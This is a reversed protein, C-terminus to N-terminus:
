RGNFEKLAKIMAVINEVPTNAQINHVTNFVFGGDRSFIECRKLVQKRVEEPTGFTLTSQTDIGGGWFVIDKNFDKKLNEAEMNTALCQVPNLIDFGSEIFAPILSRVAGCSHKFTKWNTNQHIWDNIKKYYPMYLSRYSDESCFVSTQTGFDTGCVFVIDVYQEIQKKLRKLNALAIECQKEFIQHIFDQRMITSIYWEEIDRIGKPYKLFPAPVLAIDGLATGGFTVMVARDTKATQKIKQTFYNLDEDSLPKFEELNDEVNLKSDDIPEQRIIADFFVGTAPIKGSPPVSIDGEPYILMSGNEDTSTQFHESVLVEFGQPFKWPKWNENPFGFMTNRPVVGEVDVGLAEQLDAEILGLMQYPEYAKVLRKELNFYDRLAAVAFVHIGTVATAGFDVPVTDPQTHNISTLVIEKSTM